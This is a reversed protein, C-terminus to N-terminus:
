GSQNAVPVPICHFLTEYGYVMWGAYHVQPHQNVRVWITPLTNVQNTTAAIVGVPLTFFSALACALLIGWWPLQLQSKYGEVTAISVAIGLVMLILFWWNPIDTYRRMLRTHVDVENGKLATRTRLWIERSLMQM